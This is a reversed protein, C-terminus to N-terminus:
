ATVAERVPVVKMLREKENRDIMEVACGAFFARVREGDWDSVAFEDVGPVPLSVLAYKRCAKVAEAIAALDDESEVHELVDMLLVYDFTGGPNVPVFAAGPVKDIAVSRAGEHPEVGVVRYGREVLL